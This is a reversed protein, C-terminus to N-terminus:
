TVCNRVMTRHKADGRFSVPSLRGIQALTRMMAAAQLAAGTGGIQLEQSVRPLIPNLSM